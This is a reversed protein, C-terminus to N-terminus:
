SGRGTIRDLLGRPKKGQLGPTNAALAV